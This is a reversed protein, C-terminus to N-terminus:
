KKKTQTVEITDVESLWKHVVSAGQIAPNKGEQYTNYAGNLMSFNVVSILTLILSFVVLYLGGRIFFRDHRETEEAEIYNRYVEKFFRGANPINVLVIIIGIICLLWQIIKLGERIEPAFKAIMILLLLFALIFGLSVVVWSQAARILPHEVPEYHGVQQLEYEQYQEQQLATGGRSQKLNPM